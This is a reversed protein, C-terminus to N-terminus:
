AQPYLHNQHLQKIGELMEGSETSNRNTSKEHTNNRSNKTPILLREFM